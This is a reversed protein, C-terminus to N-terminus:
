FGASILDRITQTYLKTKSTLSWCKIEAKIAIQCDWACITVYIEEWCDKDPDFSASLIQMDM